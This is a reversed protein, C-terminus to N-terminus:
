VSLVVHSNSDLNSFFPCSRRHGFSIAFSEVISLLKVVRNSLMSSGCCFLGVVLGNDGVLGMREMDVLEVLYRVFDVMVSNANKINGFIGVVKAYWDKLVFEKCMVSYLSVNSCCLDLTRLISSFSPNCAVALSIWHASVESLIDRQIYVDQLCTFVHDPLEVKGCLLCQVGPYSKNYLRKHVVVPLRRHLAKILYTHLIASKQSTFGALMHLDPHWVQTSAIWDFSQLSAVPVVNHSPGAKVIIKDVTNETKKLTRLQLTKRTDQYQITQQHITIEMEQHQILQFLQQTLTHINDTIEM